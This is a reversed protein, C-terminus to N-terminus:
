NESWKPLRACDQLIVANRIFPQIGSLSSKMGTLTLSIGTPFAEKGAVTHAKDM